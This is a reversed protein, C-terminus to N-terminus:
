EFTLIFPCTQKPIVTMIAESIFTCVRKTYHVLCVQWHWLRSSLSSSVKYSSFVEAIDSFLIHFSTNINSWCSSETKFVNQYNALWNRFKFLVLQGRENGLFRIHIIAHVKSM